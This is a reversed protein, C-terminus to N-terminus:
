KGFAFREVLTFQTGEAAQECLAIDHMVEPRNLAPAFWSELFPLLVEREKKGIRGTLTLHFKYEDMVYPYGWHLLLAEQRATLGLKRRRAIETSELPARFRDFARVVDMAFTAFGHADTHPVLAIFDSLMSVQFMPLQMPERVHVFASIAQKLEDVTRSQSLVFPAKFTAHWGYRRPLSTIEAVHEARLEGVAPQDAVANADMNWGLWRSGLTGLRTSFPPVCYIAYRVM